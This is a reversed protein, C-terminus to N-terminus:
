KKEDEDGLNAYQLTKPVPETLQLFCRNRSIFGTGTSLYYNIDRYNTLAKKKFLM